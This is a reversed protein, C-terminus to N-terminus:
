TYSSSVCLEVPSLGADAILAPVITLTTTSTSPSISCVGTPTATLELTVSGSGVDASGPYYIPNLVTADDFTGDGGLATWQYNVESAM